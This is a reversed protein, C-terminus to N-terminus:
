CRSYEAIRAATDSTKIFKTLNTRCKSCSGRLAPVQRGTRRNNYIEVCLTGDDAKVRGRCSVCYFEEKKLKSKLKAPM